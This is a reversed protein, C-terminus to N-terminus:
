AYGLATGFYVNVRKSDCGATTSNIYIGSPEYHVAFTRSIAGGDGVNGIYRVMSYLMCM